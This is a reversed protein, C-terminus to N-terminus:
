KRFIDKSIIEKMIESTGGYIRQVRADVYARSIPYEEMYGYGGFLQVCGDVIRGQAETTSLKAMSADATSLQNKELLLLCQNVYARNVRAETTMEAMKHRIVQMKSLPNGFAERENLYKITIELAGEMAGCAGVALIMRERPLEHMLTIFGYDLEGLIQSSPVIVDDFYLESTDASHLGIKKLNKGKTVGKSNADVIFLTTGKSAPVHQNTRAIVIVFDFHQGNTIFTKSGNIIYEGTTANKTAATKIGQLDSGAGPETMAIAGVYEGTVMRPLYHAKQEESGSHLIYHAVINSHVSLNSSIANYGLRSFEDVISAAFQLPAGLGGYKEPLDVCLFGLDGLKRWLERPLIGDAEWQCYQEEIEKKAFAEISKKFLAIEEDIAVSQTM